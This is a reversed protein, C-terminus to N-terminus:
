MTFIPLVLAMEVTVAKRRGQKWREKWRGNMINASLGNLWDMGQADLWVQTM